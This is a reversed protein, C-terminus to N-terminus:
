ENIVMLQRFHQLLDSVLSSSRKKENVKFSIKFCGLGSIIL